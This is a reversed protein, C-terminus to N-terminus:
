EATKFVNERYWKLETISERIDGLARHDYNKRPLNAFVSPYWRGTIEKVTSVDLIRYGLHGVVRPMDFELFRKDAHVSNGALLGVKPEPIHKTIFAMVTEEADAMSVPSSLVAATLGSAGHHETCWADMSDLLAKPQRIIISDLEAVTKLHGDTIICAIEIIHDKSTDLGTMECDIWVLPKYLSAAITTSM